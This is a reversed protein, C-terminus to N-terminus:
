SVTATGTWSYRRFGKLALGPDILTTSADTSERDIEFDLTKKLAAREIVFVFDTDPLKM